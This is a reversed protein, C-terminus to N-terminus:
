HTKHSKIKRENKIDSVRLYKKNFHKREYKQIKMNIEADPKVNM